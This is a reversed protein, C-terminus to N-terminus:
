TLPGGTEDFYGNVQVVGTSLERRQPSPQGNLTVEDFQASYLANLSTSITAQTVEDFYGNAYLVGTNTLRSAIGTASYVIIIGGQGGASGVVTASTVRSGGGGGGGFIGGAGAFANNGSIGGSGGGGGGGMGANAIDTGSGGPGPDGGAGGGVSGGGGGGNFGVGGAGNTGSFGAGGGVGANSNGGNGGLSQAGNQGNTGGGNGGGGGGSNYTNNALNAGFGNGGNAGTGLPGGAGGGGGGATASGAVTIFFSSVGGAGGNNTLGTGATGGTSSTTTASGGGGGTTTYAGANFTTNGGGGGNGNTAGATGAAGITYSVSSSPTLLLNTVRTYGGGGGGGGGAGNPATYRGGAGGGGGGFLHIENNSNTWNAPVTWTTGSTLVYIFRNVTPAIAAVGLVNSRLLTNAGAYFTVPALNATIDRVDLYDIGLTQNTLTIIRSTGVASSNVTVINGASGTVTWNNITQTASFTITHAVTKTSSLTGIISSAPGFTTASIGTTGGISVTGYTLGAGGSFARSTTTTNTLNITSSSGSFTLGTITGFNWVTGTGTINIISTGLTISRTNIGSGVFNSCTITKNNTNLSGTVLQISTSSILNDQFTWGGGAGDFYVFTAGPDMSNWSITKGTATAAFTLGKGGSFALNLNFSSDGYIELTVTAVSIIGAFDLANCTFNNCVGGTGITVIFIAGTDSGSDFVVNDTITPVGAGGGGGSSASWNTTTTADWTGTGGVWYYTAM